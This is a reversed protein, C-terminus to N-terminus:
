QLYHTITNTEKPQGLISCCAPHSLAVSMYEKVTRSALLEFDLCQCFWAREELKLHHSSIRPMMVHNSGQTDTEVHRRKETHGDM